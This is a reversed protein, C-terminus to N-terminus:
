FLYFLRSRPLGSYTKAKKKSSTFISSLNFFTIVIIVLWTSIVFPATFAPIKKNIIHMTITSLIAGVIIAL